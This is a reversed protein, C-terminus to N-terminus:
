VGRLWEAFFPDGVTLTEGRQVILEDELLAQVARRVGPPGAYAVERAFEAAYPQELARARAIGVLVARQGRTVRAMRDVFNAEELRLITDLAREVEAVSIRRGSQEFTQYALRQIDNPVPGGIAVIQQACGPTMEKRGETARKELYREMAPPDIPRLAIREAMGYLPAGQVTVLAEMLHERSGAVVLSVGPQEDALGKLAPAIGGGLDGVAQFEDLVLVAPRDGTASALQGYVDALVQVADREALSPSFSFTPHGSEDFSVSPHVRLRGLVEPITHTAGRARAGSAHHVGAVLREALSGLTPCRMLNVQVVAARPRRRELRDVAELILSTKGYRRPATVVVNVGNTMRSLLAALEEDRGTFRDGTVPSGYSFPNQM